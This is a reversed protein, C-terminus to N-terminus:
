VQILCKLSLCEVQQVIAGAGPTLEKIQFFRVKAALQAETFMDLLQRREKHDVRANRGLEMKRDTKGHHGVEPYM